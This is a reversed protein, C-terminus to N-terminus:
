KKRKENDSSSSESKHSDVCNVLFYGLLWDAVIFIVIFGSIKCVSCFVSWLLSSGASLVSM